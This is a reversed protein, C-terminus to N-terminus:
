PHAIARGRKAKRRPITRALIVCVLLEGSVIIGIAILLANLNGPITANLLNLLPIMLYLGAIALAGLTYVLLHPLELFFAWKSTAKSKSQTDSVAASEWVTRNAESEIVANIIANIQPDPVFPTTVPRFVVNHSGNHGNSQMPRPTSPVTLFADVQNGNAYGNHGNTHGNHGNSQTPRPTFPITLFANVQNGNAHGNGQTPRPTFPITGPLFANLTDSRQNQHSWINDYPMNLPDLTIQNEITGQATDQHTWINECPIAPLGLTIQDEIDEQSAFHAQSFLGDKTLTNEKVLSPM